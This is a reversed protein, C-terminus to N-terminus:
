DPRERGRAPGPVLVPPARISNVGRRDPTVIATTLGEVPTSERSRTLTGNTQQAKQVEEGVKGGYRVALGEFFATAASRTTAVM